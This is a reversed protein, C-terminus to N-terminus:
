DQWKHRVANKSCLNDLHQLHSRKITRLWVQESWSTLALITLNSLARWMHAQKNARGQEVENASLQPACCCSHACAGHRFTGRPKILLLYPPFMKCALMMFVATCQAPLMHWPGQIQYIASKTPKWLAWHSALAQSTHKSLISRSHCFLVNEPTECHKICDPVDVFTKIYSGYQLVIWRQHFTIPYFQWHCIGMTCSSQVDAFAGAM